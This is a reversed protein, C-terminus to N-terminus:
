VKPAVWGQRELVLWSSVTNSLVTDQSAVWRLYGTGAGETGARLRTRVALGDRGFAPIQSPFLRNEAHTPGSSRTALTGSHPPPAVAFNGMPLSCCTRALRLWPPFSDM